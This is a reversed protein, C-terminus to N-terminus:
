RVQDMGMHIEDLGQGSVLAAIASGQQPTALCALGGTQEQAIEGIGGIGQGGDFTAAIGADQAAQHGTHGHARAPAAM